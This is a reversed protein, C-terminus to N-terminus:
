SHQSAKLQSCQPISISHVNTCKSVLGQADGGAILQVKM